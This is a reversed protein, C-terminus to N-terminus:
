DARRGPRIRSEPTLRPGLCPGAVYAWCATDGVRLGVRRFLGDAVAEYRDLRPLLDAPCRWIEGEVRDEGGLVLAPYSGADFLTGRVAATEVRECDALLESGAGGSMLTGYSFLHFHADMSRM